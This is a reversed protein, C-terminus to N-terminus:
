PAPRRREKQGRAEKIDRKLKETDIGAFIGHSANLAARAREPDYGAWIDNPDALVPKAVVAPSLVAIDQGNERLVRPTGSRQVEEALAKLEPKDSIDLYRPETTM